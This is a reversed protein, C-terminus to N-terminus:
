SVPNDHMRLIILTSPIQKEAEYEEIENSSLDLFALEPLHKLGEIKSIKNNSLNLM